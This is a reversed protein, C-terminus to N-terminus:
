PVVNGVLDRFDAECARRHIRQAKRQDLLEHRRQPPGRGVLVDVGDHQRARQRSTEARPQVEAHQEALRCGFHSSQQVLEVHFQGVCLVIEALRRDGRDAARRPAAAHRQGDGAVHEKGATARTKTIGFDIETENRCNM